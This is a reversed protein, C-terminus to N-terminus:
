SEGLIYDTMLKPSMVKIDEPVRQGTSIYSVPLGTAVPLDILIGPEATEDIKTFLISHIPFFSRYRNVVEIAERRKMNCSVLLLAKFEGGSLTAKIEGIRWYDYHSRGVTDILIFDLDRLNKLTERMKKADTVTYFPINLISTYTRAQQVAGVKFTDTSIVGVRAGRELSLKAALKFLNTTKGVGTPGVFAFVRQRDERELEGTFKLLKKLSKELAERFTQTNLDLKNSDIDVGCSEEVVKGAVEESVGREMLKAILDLADGTFRDFKGDIDPKKIHPPNQFGQPISARSVISKIERIERKLEEIEKEDVGDKERVFLRYRNKRIFPLFERTREVEYYLIDVKEGFESKAKEILAELNQGELVKVM